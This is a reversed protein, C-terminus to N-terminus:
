LLYPGIFCQSTWACQTSLLAFGPVYFLLSFPLFALLSLLLFIFPLPRGGFIASQLSCFSYLAFRAAELKWFLVIWGRAVILVTYYSFMKAFPGFCSFLFCYCIYRFGFLGRFDSTWLIFFGGLVSSCLPLLVSFNFFGYIKLAFLQFVSINPVKLDLSAVAILVDSLFHIHTRETKITIIGVWKSQWNYAFGGSASNWSVM